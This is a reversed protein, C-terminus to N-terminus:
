PFTESVRECFQDMVEIIKAAGSSPEVITISTVTTTRAAATSSETIPSDVIAAPLYALSSWALCPGHKYISPFVKSAQKYIVKMRFALSM